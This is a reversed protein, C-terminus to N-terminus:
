GVEVEDGHWSGTDVKMTTEEAEFKTPTSAPARTRCDYPFSEAIEAGMDNARDSGSGYLLTVDVTGKIRYEIHDTDLSLVEVEDIWVTGTEYHSSIEGLEEITQNIFASTAEGHLEVSVADIIRARVDDITDFVDALAGIVENSFDEIEAPDTLLTDERVHTRKHLQQFVSSFESHLEKPDVGLKNKLFDDTLGGRCTYLARQRRVPGDTNQDQKYWLCRMVEADPALTQLVHTILERLTAAFQQARMPNQEQQLVQLAGDLMTRSFEDPLRGRLEAVLIEDPM